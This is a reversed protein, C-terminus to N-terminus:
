SKIAGTSTTSGPPRGRRKPASPLVSTRANKPTAPCPQPDKDRTRFKVKYTDSGVEAFYELKELQEGLRSFAVGFRALYVDAQELLRTLRSQATFCRDLWDKQEEFNLEHDQQRGVPDDIHEDVMDRLDELDELHGKAKASLVAHIADVIDVGIEQQDRLRQEKSYHAESYKPLYLVLYRSM